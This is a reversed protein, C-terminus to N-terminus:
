RPQIGGTNPVYAPPSPNFDHGGISGASGGGPYAAGAARLSGDRRAVIRWGYHDQLYGNVCGLYDPSDPGQDKNTCATRAEVTQQFRLQDTTLKAAIPQAADPVGAQAASAMAAATDPQPQAPMVYARGQELAVDMHLQGLVDMGIILDPIREFDGRTGLATHRGIAPTMSYDQILVPVNVATVGGGAFTLQPFTHVYVQMHRGDELGAVPTMDPTDPKLGISREAIDRRMVTRASSTDLEADIVHGQLTVQMQLRGDPAVSVPIVAVDNRAALAQAVSNQAAAQPTPPPDNRAMVTAPAGSSQPQPPDNSATAPEPAPTADPLTPPAAANADTAPAQPTPLTQTAAPNEPLAPLAAVSTESPLAANEEATKVPSLIQAAKAQMRAVPSALLGLALPLALAAAASASLVFKRATNLRLVLRNEAITQIRKKLGGSVGAVCALPSQLYARCVKLIGEAYIQPDNGDALVSEDCAREREANLRAGLWWVLPFFWFLAEVLMHVAALLNDRRRWHCLEHALVAKLEAPSLQQEIGQPLLIVPSLIGVLGPELRSASFKVAIPADIQLEIAERLLVRVRSWRVLWRFVLMLFGALWLALLASGLDLHITTPTPQASRVPPTSQVPLAAPVPRVSPEAALRATVPVIAPASFPKAFPEVRMVSPASVAPLMPTLFYAGLATLAAFPILFKISAAFWLWFRVGAGNRHLALAMLGAGGVFLSSQWLHNLLLAIM